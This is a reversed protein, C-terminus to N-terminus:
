VQGSRIAETLQIKQICRKCDCTVEKFDVQCAAFVGKLFKMHVCSGWFDVVITKLFVLFFVHTVVM